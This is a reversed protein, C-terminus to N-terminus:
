KRHLHHSVCQPFARSIAVRGRDGFAVIVITNRCRFRDGGVVGRRALDHPLVLVRRVTVDAARPIEHCCAVKYELAAICTFEARQVGPVAPLQELDRRRSRDPRARHGITGFALLVDREHRRVANM